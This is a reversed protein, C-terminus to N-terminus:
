GSAFPGRQFRVKGSQDAAMSQFSGSLASKTGVALDFFATSERGFGEEVLHIQIRDRSFYLKDVYGELTGRKRNPGVYDREGTSSKEHIKEFTGRIVPGEQWIMCVYRLLMGKFPNYATELTETEFYWRGSLIPLAFCKEQVVFFLVALVTGGVVTAITDSLFSSFNMTSDQLIM